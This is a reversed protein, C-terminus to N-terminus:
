PKEGIGHAAEAYRIGIEIWSSTTYDFDSPLSRWVARQAQEIDEDTLPERKPQELAARLTAVADGCRKGREHDVQWNFLSELAELAMEMAKRDTMAVGQEPQELAARLEEFLDSAAYESLPSDWRDLVSQVTERLTTM